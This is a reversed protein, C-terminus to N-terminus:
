WENITPLPMKPRLSIAFAPAAETQDDLVIEPGSSATVSASTSLESEIREKWWRNQALVPEHDSCSLALSSANVFLM